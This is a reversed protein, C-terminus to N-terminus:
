FFLSRKSELITGNDGAVWLRKGDSTGFVANLNYKVGSPRQKWTAGSDYSELIMGGTGVAWLHKGDATGFVGFLNSAVGAPHSSWHVGWDTSILTTGSDGVACILKGDPTTFVANLDATVDSLNSQPPRWTVGWDATELIVGHDGVAILFRGDLPGSVANLTTRVGGDMAGIDTSQYKTGFIEGSGGVAMIRTGDSFIGRMQVPLTYVTENPALFSGKKVLPLSYIGKSNSKANGLWNESEPTSSASQTPDEFQVNEWNTGYDISMFIASTVSMTKLPWDTISIAPILVKKGDPSVSISQCNSPEILGHNTWTGGGDTSALFSTYAGCAYLTKGDLSGAIARVPGTIKSNLPTWNAGAHGLWLHFVLDAVLILCALPVFALIRKLIAFLLAEYHWSDRKEDRGEHQQQERKKRGAEERAKQEALERAKRDAEERAKQEELQKLRREREIPELKRAEEAALRAAEEARAKEAAKERAQQEALERAKREAERKREEALERERERREEAEKRLAEARTEERIRKVQRRLGDLIEFRVDAWKPESETFHILPSSGPVMQRDALFPYDTWGCPEVLVPIVVLEKREARAAIRPLEFTEIFESNLFHQSVMLLAIQAQDIESEILRKYEDGGMLEKDFWFEVHDRRLSEKLFPILNFRYELDLWRKDEHAYAVFIHVTLDHPGGAPTPISSSM